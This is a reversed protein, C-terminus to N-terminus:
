YSGPGGAAARIKKLRQAMSQWHTGQWYIRHCLPCRMFQEQTRYVHPPVLEKVQEKNISVLPTNDELCRTFPHMHNTLDLENVLQQMQMVPEETHFLIVRLRGSRALRREAIGTDRTLIIRSEKLARAVLRSDEGAEFFVTDFGM